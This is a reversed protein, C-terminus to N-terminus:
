TYYWCHRSSQVHKGTGVQFVYPHHHYYYGECGAHHIVPGVVNSNSSAALCAAYSLGATRAWVDGADKLLTIAREKSIGQGIWVQGGSLRARWFDYNEQDLYEEAETAIIYTVGAVIIIKGLALLAELLAETIIMGIPYPIVTQIQIEENDQFLDMRIWNDSQLEQQEELLVTQTVDDNHYYYVEGVIEEAEDDFYYNQVYFDYSQNITLNEIKAYSTECDYTLMWQCGDATVLLQTGNNDSQLITVDSEHIQGATISSITEKTLVSTMDSVVESTASVCTAMAMQNWVLSCVLCICTFRYILRKM